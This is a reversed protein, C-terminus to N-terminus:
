LLSAEWQPIKKGKSLSSQSPENEPEASPAPEKQTQNEAQEGSLPSTEVVPINPQEGDPLPEKNTDAKQEQHEGSFPFQVGDFLYERTQPAGHVESAGFISYENGEKDYFLYTLSHSQAPEEEMLAQLQHNSNPQLNIFVVGLFLVIMGYITYTISQGFLSPEKIQRIHFTHKGLFQKSFSKHSKQKHRYLSM